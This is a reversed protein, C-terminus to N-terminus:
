IGEMQSALNHIWKRSRWRFIGLIWKTVEESMVCLYVFYVPLHFYFAGLAAFPVGVLWIIIGDLFLSFRTDGGARLIGVVITMNNVRVWLFISVINVMVSANQLVESSVNFLSLAPVKFIQLLLGLLVGGAIGLGISRGGYLYAEDDKGAGIRNGVLVSTANALGVFVVFAIQEIPSVINVTALAETGMRGYIANYTTIGLSWFLENLMVPLMPKIVRATFALDFDTLEKISAAVPFKYAYIVYLLIVCELARAIVAAVAAGQVGMEPMGFYGFILVYSLLTNLSLVGVSVYTPLKVSGTSRMVFVYSASVAMFLFTWSFTRVYETGMAIVEPDKSYIGLFWEPVFQSIAFFVASASIAFMLCLGLVRKLNPIDQRGWFQATFMAAGSIIGFHVLNLLFAIQGALGVAAVATDGKQGVFVVGLMNLLAYVFQQFIIPLAIKFVNNFYERDSYLAVIKNFM